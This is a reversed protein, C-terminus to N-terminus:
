ETRILRAYLGDAALLEEHTGREAIRGRELVVIEDCDRITSLRHAIVVTTIGRDRVAEVVGQETSADLASTAEDMVLITPEQALARAIELRQRQGGSLDRGNESLMGNYGGPRRIIDSHIQADRAALIMEYDEISDDWMKINNAVTDEFIVIDQDVMALSACFVDRDISEIPRGDILIQGSWPRYLGTILKGVTSKGCGSPGVLAVSGGRKITLSFDKLLPEDLQSYGFTVNRLEVDGALKSYDQEGAAPRASRQAEIVPDEPHDMVDEVREMQARMEQISEGSAILDSAPTFFSNVFGQFAMIMGVTFSGRMAFWIGLVVILYNSFQVVIRPLLGLHDMLTVYGAKSNALAIQYGSWKEFFGSDAGLAMITEIMKIGSATVASLRGQNQVSRRTLNLRRKMIVRSLFVNGLAAGVGICTMVLSYRLMVTLYFIVMAANLAIPVVVDILTDAISENVGQRDQLDGASRQFFFDLPMHLVHWFFSANSVLSMKTRIKLLHNDRIAQAALVGASVVAFLILFPEKWGDYLGTLMRDTLVRQFVPLMIAGLAAAFAALMIFVVEPGTGRLRRAAYSLMSTQRGGPAFGEGPALVIYENEYDRDFAEERLRVSGREPDNLVPGQRGFGCLVAFKGDKWRVICPYEAQDRLAALDGTRVTARLGFSDAARVINGSKSGDRSVGCAMRAQALTIWRGYYALVAALSAAGSEEADMQMFVPVRAVRGRVPRAMKARAGM